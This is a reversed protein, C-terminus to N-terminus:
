MDMLRRNSSSSKIEARFGELAQSLTRFHANRLVPLRNSGNQELADILSAITLRKVDDKLVYVSTKDATSIRNLFDCATLEHVIHSVLRYPIDLAESIKEASLPPGQALHHKVCYHAVHLVLLRRFGPSIGFCDAEFEYASQHQHAFALEAGFLVILWSLQLWILLLPLAAFSGYIANYRSIEVQFIIFAWHALQYITGAVIGAWISSKYNIASRPIFTYIFTFLMWVLLYPLLKLGLFFIPSVWGILAFKHIILKFQTTLFITASSSVIVFLPAILMLVAYDLGRRGWNRRDLDEWIENFATQLHGIVALVSLCLMAGGIVALLGGRTSDLLAQAFAIIRNLINEYGDFKALLQRELLTEIGMARATVFAMAALPVISLLSFFTLSAARLQCKNEDFGRIALLVIRLHRIFFIRKGKLRTLRLRWIDVFLFKILKSILRRLNWM